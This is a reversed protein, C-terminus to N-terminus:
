VDTVVDRGRPEGTLAFGHGPHHVPVDDGDVFGPHHLLTRVNGHFQEFPDRQGLPHGAVLREAEVGLQVDHRLEALPQLVSVVVTDNM